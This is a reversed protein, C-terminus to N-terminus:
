EIHVGRHKRRFLSKIKDMEAKTFFGMTSIILVFLIIGAIRIFFSVILNMGCSLYMAGGYIVGALVIIKILRFWEYQIPYVRRTYIYLVLASVFYAGLTAWAAGWYGIIPILMFNMVINIVAGVGIAAPLYQTKKTIHFGCQFNNYVGNFYFSLLIVPIIGMGSWYDPNIFKGGIFPVRVVFDMFLGTVLFVGAAILTFYTLIRAFLQKADADKYHSLYFPKWAYEFVMVFLIMPIGLKHNVQYLAFQVSDTLPKLIWRDGVQLIMGALMAPLTPIGFKLMNKLLRFDINFSLKNLILKAFISAGVFNAIIQAWLIGEAGSRYGVVFIFNLVVAIIVLIFKTVAFRRAQRTMRLHSYPVIMLADLFPVIAALIILTRGNELETIAPSISGAFLITLLTISGSVLAITLYSNTFVKTSNSQADEEYFRFYASDMGFGYIINIVALIAFIYQIDGLEVMTLYNTYLPTLMFTLFRAVITFVGYVMTDSALSKIRSV